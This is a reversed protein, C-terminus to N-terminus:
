SRNPLLLTVSAALFLLFAANRLAIALGVEDAIVGLVYTGVAGSFFMLGLTLGSAFARRGPILSQAAIVLVSHPMGGFFGALLLLPPRALDPASIYVYFPIFAGLVGVLIPLRRGHRDGLTGGIIGGVASGLMYIGSILGVYLAAYGLETFLKSGLNITAMSVTSTAIIITM